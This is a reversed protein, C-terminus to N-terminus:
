HPEAIDKPTDVMFLQGDLDAARASAIEEDTPEEAKEKPASAPKRTMVTTPAFGAEMSDPMPLDRWDSPHPPFPLEDPLPQNLLEKISPQVPQPPVAFSVKLDGVELTLVGAEKAVLILEAAQAYRSKFLPPERM